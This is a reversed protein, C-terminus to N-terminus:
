GRGEETANIAERLATAAQTYAQGPYQKAMRDYFALRRDADQAPFTDIWPGDLTIQGDTTTATFATM